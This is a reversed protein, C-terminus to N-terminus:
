YDKDINPFCICFLYSVQQYSDKGTYCYYCQLFSVGSFFLVILHNVLFFHVRSKAKLKETLLSVESSILVFVNLTKYCMLLRSLHQITTTTLIKSPTCYKKLKTYARQMFIFFVVKKLLSARNISTFELASIAPSQFVLILFFPLVVFPLSQVRMRKMIVNLQSISFYLSM